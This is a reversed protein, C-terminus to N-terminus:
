APQRRLGSGIREAGQWGLQFDLALTQGVAVVANEAVSTKFNTGSVKVEYTGPPLQSIRYHGNDGANTTRSFNTAANRVTVSANPVVAGQPDTVTGEVAGTPEQAFVATAGLALCLLIVISLVNKM